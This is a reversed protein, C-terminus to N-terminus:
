QESEEVGCSGKEGPRFSVSEIKLTAGGLVPRVQGKPRARTGGRRVVGGFGLGIKLSRGFCGVALTGPFREKAALGELSKTEYLRNVPQARLEPQISRCVGCM